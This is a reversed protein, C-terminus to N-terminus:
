RWSSKTRSQWQDREPDDFVKAWKEAGSFRHDGHAPSQALAPKALLVIIITLAFSIYKMVHVEEYDSNGCM